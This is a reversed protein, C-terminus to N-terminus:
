KCNLIKPRKRAKYILFTPYCVIFAVYFVAYLAGTLLSKGGVYSELLLNHAAHICIISVIDKRYYLIVAWSAGCVAIVFFEQAMTMIKTLTFAMSASQYYGLFLNVVGGQIHVFGFIAASIVIAVPIKLGNQKLRFLENTIFGRYVLEELLGVIFIQRLFDSIRMQWSLWGQLFSYYMLHLYGIASLVLCLLAIIVTHRSLRFNEAKTFRFRFLLLIIIVTEFLDKVSLNINQNWVICFWQSLSLTEYNYYKEIFSMTDIHLFESFFIFKYLLIDVIMVTAIKVAAWLTKNETAKKLSILKLSIMGM